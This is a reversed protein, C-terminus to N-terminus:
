ELNNLQKKRKRAKSFDIIALIDFTLGVTHYIAFPTFVEPDAIPNVLQMTAILHGVIGFTLKFTAGTLLEQREKVLKLSDIEQGYSTVSFLLLILLLKKM